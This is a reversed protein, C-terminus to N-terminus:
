VRIERSRHKVLDQLLVDTRKIFPPRSHCGCVRHIRQTQPLLLNTGGSNWTCVFLWRGCVICTLRHLDHYWSMIKSQKDVFIIKPKCTFHEFCKTWMVSFRFNNQHLSNTKLVLLSGCQGVKHANIKWWGSFSYVHRRWEIFDNEANNARQTPFWRDATSKGWLSWDHKSAKKDAGSCFISCVISVSTIHSAMTSM